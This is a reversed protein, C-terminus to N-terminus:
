GQRKQYEEDTMQYSEVNPDDDELIVRSAVDPPRTDLVKLGMGDRTGISALTVTDLEQTIGQSDWILKQDPAADNDADDTRLAWLQIRQHDPPIGTIHELRGRLTFLGDSSALRRESSIRTSPSHVFVTVTAM